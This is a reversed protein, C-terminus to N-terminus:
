QQAEMSGGEAQAAIWREIESVAIRVGGHPLTISRLGAERLDFLTRRSVSLATAAEALTLLLKLKSHEVPATM